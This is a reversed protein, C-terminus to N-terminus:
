MLLVSVYATRRDPGYIGLLVDWWTKKVYGAGPSDLLTTTSSVVSQQRVYAEDEQEERDKSSHSLPSLEEDDDDENAGWDSTRALSHPARTLQPELVVQLRTLSVASCPPLATTGPGLELGM